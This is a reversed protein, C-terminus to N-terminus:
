MAPYKQHYTGTKEGHRPGLRDCQLKSKEPGFSENEPAVDVETKNAAPSTDIETEQAEAESDLSDKPYDVGIEEHQAKTTPENKGISKEDMTTQHVVNIDIEGQQAAFGKLVKTTDDGRRAGLISFVPRRSRHSDDISKQEITTQQVVNIDTTENEEWEDLTKM